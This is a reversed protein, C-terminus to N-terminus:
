CKSTSRDVLVPILLVIGKLVELKRRDVVTVKMSQCVAHLEVFAEKINYM